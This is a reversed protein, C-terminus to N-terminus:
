MYLTCNEYVTSHSLTLVRYHCSHSHKAPRVRLVEVEVVDEVSHERQELHERELAPDLDAVDELLADVRYRVRVSIRYVRTLTRAATRTRDVIPQCVTNLTWHVTYIRMSHTRAASRSWRCGRTRTWRSGSRAWATRPRRPSCSGRSCLCRAAWRRGAGSARGWLGCGGSAAAGCAEAARHTSM